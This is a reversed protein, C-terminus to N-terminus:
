MLLPVFADPDHSPRGLEVPFTNLAYNTGACMQMMFSCDGYRHASQGACLGLLTHACDPLVLRGNFVLACDLWVCEFCQGDAGACALTAVFAM